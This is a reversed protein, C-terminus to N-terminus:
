DSNMLSCCDGTFVFKIISKNQLSAYREKSVDCAHLFPENSDTTLIVLRGLRREKGIVHGSPVKPINSYAMM